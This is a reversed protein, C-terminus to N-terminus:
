SCLMLTCFVEPFLALELKEELMDTVNRMSEIAMCFIIINKEINSEEKSCLFLKFECFGKQLGQVAFCDSQGIFVETKDTNEVQFM